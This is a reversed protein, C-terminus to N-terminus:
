AITVMIAPVSRGPAPKVTVFIVPLLLGAVGAEAEGVRARECESWAGGVALPEALRWRTLPM